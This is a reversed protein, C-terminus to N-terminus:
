WPRWWRGSSAPCAPWSSAAAAASSCSSARPPARPNEHVAAGRPLLAQKRNNPSLAIGREAFRRQISAWTPAHEELPVDAVAAAVEATLDDLTPGLGGSVLLVDARAAAEGLARAMEERRDGVLTVAMPRLGLPVLQEMFWPSNTDPVSGDLLEDGTCLLELRM